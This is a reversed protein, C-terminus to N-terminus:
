AKLDYCGRGDWSGFAPSDNHRQGQELVQLWRQWEAHLATWEEPQLGSPPSSPAVGAVGCLEQVLSPSVGQLRRTLGPLDSCCLRLQASRIHAVSLPYVTHQTHM